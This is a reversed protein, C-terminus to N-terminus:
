KELRLFFKGNYNLLLPNILYKIFVISKVDTILFIIMKNLTTHSLRYKLRINCIVTLMDTKQRKIGVSFQSIYFFILVFNM